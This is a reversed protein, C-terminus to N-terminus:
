RRSSRNALISLRLLQLIAAITAALYTMAAANLVKKAQPLEQADLYSGEGLASLARSSANIEVPLTLLQFVVALAYVVVGAMALTPQQLFLGIFVLPFALQSGINALPVVASRMNLLTYGEIHQLAHGAEHAAIGLAAISSSSYVKPSLRLTRTKPDYHDSLSGGGTIEEIRINGAGNKDLIDRAVQYASQGTHAYVRSYKKFANQVASQALVGLLLAPLLLLMTWDYFLPM